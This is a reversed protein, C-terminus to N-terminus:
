KFNYDLINPFRKLNITVYKETDHNEYNFTPYLKEKCDELRWPDNEYSVINIISPNSKTMVKNTVWTKIVFNIHLDNGGYGILIIKDLESLAYNFLDFYVQLLKSGARVSFFVDNM